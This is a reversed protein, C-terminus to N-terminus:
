KIENNPVYEMLDGPQCNLLACLKELSRTDINGSNNVLKMLTEQGIIKHKRLYYKSIGKEKMLRFLKEYSMSM